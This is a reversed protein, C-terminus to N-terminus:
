TTNTTTVSINGDSTSIKISSLGTMKALVAPTLIGRTAANLATGQPLAAATAHGFDIAVQVYGGASVYTSFAQGGLNFYYIGSATVNGAMGMATFATAASSGDIAAGALGDSVPALGLGLVMLLTACM